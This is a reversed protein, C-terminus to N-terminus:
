PRWPLFELEPLRRLRVRRALAALLRGKAHGLAQLAKAEEQFAEVYATLVRGDPSLRVAEVTLLFLRPDELGQIAEALARKLREELHARGYM